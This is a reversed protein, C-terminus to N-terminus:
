RGAKPFTLSISGGAFTVQQAAEDPAVVIKFDRPAPQAPSRPDLAIRLNREADKWTLAIWTASGKLYQLSRGDDDYLVFRGDAGPYIRITTPEPAAQSVYQRV